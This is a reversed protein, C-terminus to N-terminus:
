STEEPSVLEKLSEALDAMHWIVNVVKSNSFPETSTKPTSTINGDTNFTISSDLSKEDIMSLESNRKPLTGRGSSSTSNTRSLVPSGNGDFSESNSIARSYKMSNKRTQYQRDANPVVQEVIGILTSILNTLKKTLEETSTNATSNDVPAATAGRPSSDSMEKIIVSRQDTLKKEFEKEIDTRQEALKDEFLKIMEQKMEQDHQEDDVNELCSMRESLADIQQKHEMMSNCVIEHFEKTMREIVEEDVFALQKMELSELKKVFNALNDSLTTLHDSFVKVEQIM